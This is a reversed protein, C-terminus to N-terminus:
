TRVGKDCKIHSIVTTQMFNKPVDSVILSMRMYLILKILEKKIEPSRLGHRPIKSNPGGPVPLDYMAFATAM